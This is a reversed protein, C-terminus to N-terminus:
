EDERLRNCRERFANLNAKMRPSSHIKIFNFAISDYLALDLANNEITSLASNDLKKLALAAKENISGINTSMVNQKVYSLDVKIGCTALNKEFLVMSEDFRDVLGINQNTSTKEKLRSAISLQNLGKTKAANLGAIYLSQYNRITGGVNKQMRWNVYEILSKEKAAIAGPTDADQQREFNYVSIIREIPHRVLYLPIIRISKVQSTDCLHHSSIAKVNPNDHLFQELYESKGQRMENDDRHDCFDEQFNRKLAWDLTTGANKFIHGHAIVTRM